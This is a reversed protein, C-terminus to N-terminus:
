IQALGSDVFLEIWTIYSSESSALFLVSSAIEEM